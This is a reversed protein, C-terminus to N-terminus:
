AVSWEIFTEKSWGVVYIADFVRNIPAIRGTLMKMLGSRDCDDRFCAVDETMVLLRSGKEYDNALKRKIAVEVLDIARDLSISHKQAEPRITVSIGTNKTGQKEITGFCPAHGHKQLYIMQLYEREGSRAETIELKKSIPPKKSYDTILADFKQNGIVSKLIIDDRHAYKHQGLINLAYVEEILQKCLGQRFRVANEGEETQAITRLKGDLWLSLEEPTRAKELEEHTVFHESVHLM